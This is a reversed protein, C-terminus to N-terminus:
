RFVDASQMKFLAIELPLQPLKTEKWFCTQQTLNKKGEALEKWWMQGLGREEVLRRSMGLGVMTTVGTCLLTNCSSFPCLDRALALRPDGQERKQAWCQHVEGHEGKLLGTVLLPVKALVLWRHSITQPVYFVQKLCGQGGGGGMTCGLTAGLIRQTKDLSM